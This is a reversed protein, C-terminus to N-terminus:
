ELVEMMEYMKHGCAPCEAYDAKALCGCYKCQFVVSESHWGQLKLYNWASNVHERHEPEQEFDKEYHTM